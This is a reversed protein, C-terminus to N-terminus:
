KTAVASMAACETEAAGRRSSESRRRDEGKMREAVAPPPAWDGSSSSGRKRGGGPVRTETKARPILVYAKGGACVGRTRVRQLGRMIAKLSLLGARYAGDAIM